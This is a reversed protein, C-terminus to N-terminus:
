MIKLCKQAQGHRYGIHSHKINPWHFKIVLKESLNQFKSTPPRNNNMIEKELHASTLCKRM